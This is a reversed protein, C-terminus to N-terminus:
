YRTPPSRRRCLTEYAPGRRGPHGAPAGREVLRERAEAGRLEDPGPIEALEETSANLRGRLELAIALLRLWRYLQDASYGLNEAERQVADKVGVEIM